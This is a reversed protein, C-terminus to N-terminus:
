EGFEATARIEDDTLTVNLDQLRVKGMSFAMLAIHRTTLRELHPRIFGCVMSGIIGQGECSLKSFKVNLQDDIDIQGAINIVASVLKRATIEVDVFLSNRKRANQDVEIRVHKIAIGHRRAEREAAQYIATELDDLTIRANVAGHGARQILLVLGDDRDKAFELQVDEANLEFDFLAEDYRLPHGVIALEDCRPGEIHQGCPQPKNPGNEVDIEADSLNIEISQLHAVDGGAITLARNPQPLHFMQRLSTLLADKLAKVDAPPRQITLPFM